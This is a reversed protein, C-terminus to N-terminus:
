LLVARLPKFSRRHIPSPGHATLARQHAGTGYGKHAGFAYEPYVSDYDQMLTDRHVKALISAAAISLSRSDGRVLSQYPMNFPACHVADVLLFDLKPCHEGLALLARRMALCTAPAIGVEDIEEHSAAGIGWGLAVRRILTAHVARCQPRVQKSDMVGSLMTALDAQHLPLCVAAAVVPGAWAGRGVEDMGAITHLGRQRLDDELDLPATKPPLPMPNTLM